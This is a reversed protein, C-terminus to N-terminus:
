NNTQQKTKGTNSKQKPVAISNSNPPSISESEFKKALAGVNVHGTARGVTTNGPLKANGVVQFHNNNNQKKITMKPSNGGSPSIGSTTTSISSSPSSIPSSFQNPTSNTSSATPSHPSMSFGIPSTSEHSLQPPPQHSQQVPHYSPPSISQHYTPSSPLSSTSTSSSSYFLPSQSYDMPMLPPPPLNLGMTERSFIPSSNYSDPSLLHSTMSSPLSSSSTSQDSHAVSIPTSMDGLSVNMPSSSTSNSNSTNEIKIPNSSYDHIYRFASLRKPNLQSPKDPTATEWKRYPPPSMSKEVSSSESPSTSNASGIKHQKNNGLTVEDETDSCDNTTDGEDDMIDDENVINKLEETQHLSFNDMITNENVLDFETGGNNPEDSLTSSNFSSSMEEYFGKAALQQKLDELYKIIETFNPRVDPDSNWCRKILSAIEPLCSEPIPPRYETELVSRIWDIQQMEHYPIQRSICEWLVFGFSYVDAQQTYETKGVLVEVAMYCPTGVAKTMRKNDVIRSVGFDSIRVNWHNDILLNGSKLDRHIIGLSHLYQMGRAAQLAIHIIKVYSLPIENAHIIKYLSGREFYDSVLFMRGQTRSGGICHVVNEHRLISMITAESLFERENFGLNDENFTKIAVTLGEWKGKWVVGSVGRGVEQQMEVDQPVISRLVSVKGQRVLEILNQLFLKGGGSVVRNKYKDNRAINSLILSIPTVLSDNSKLINLFKDIGDIGITDVCSPDYECLHSITQVIFSSEVQSCDFLCSVLYPIINSQILIRKCIEHPSNTIIMFSRFSEARASCDHCLVFQKLLLLGNGSCFYEHVKFSNTNALMNSITLSLFFVYDTEDKFIETFSQNYKIANESSYTLHTNLEWQYFMPLQSQTDISKHPLILDIIGSNILHNNLNENICFNSFSKFILAKKSIDLFNKCCDLLCSLLKKNSEKKLDFSISLNAVSRLASHVTINDKSLLMQILIEKIPDCSLYECYEYNESVQSLFISSSRICDPSDHSKSLQIILDVGCETFFRSLFVRNSSIICLCSSIFRKLELFQSWNDFNVIKFFIGFGGERLLREKNKDKTLLKALVSTMNLQITPDPYFMLNLLGEVGISFLNDITSDKSAMMEILEVIEETWENSFALEKLRPNMEDIITCIFPSGCIPLDDITINISYDGHNTPCLTLLSYDNKRQDYLFPMKRNELDSKLKHIEIQFNPTTGNVMVGKADVRYLKIEYKKGSIGRYLGKGVAFCLAPCTGKKSTLVHVKTKGGSGLTGDRGLTLNRTTITTTRLQEGGNGGTLNNSSAGSYSENLSLPKPKPPPVLYESPLEKEFVQVQIESNETIPYDKVFRYSHLVKLYTKSQKKPNNEDVVKLFLQQKAPPYAFIHFIFTKIMWLSQNPHIELFSKKKLSQQGTSDVLDVLVRM